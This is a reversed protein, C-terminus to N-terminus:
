EKRIEGKNDLRNLLDLRSSADTLALIQLYSLKQGTRQVEANLVDLCEHLEEKTHGKPHKYIRRAEELDM